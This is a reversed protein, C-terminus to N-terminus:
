LLGSLTRGRSGRRSRVTAKCVVALDSKLQCQIHFVQPFLYTTVRACVCVSLSNSVKTVQFIKEINKHEHETSDNTESGSSPDEAM